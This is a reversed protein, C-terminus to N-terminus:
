RQNNRIFIRELILLLVLNKFVLNHDNQCCFELESRLFRINQRAFGSEEKNQLNFGVKQTSIAAKAFMSGSKFNVPLTALM